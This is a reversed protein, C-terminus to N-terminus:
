VRFDIEFNFPISLPVIYSFFLIKHDSKNGRQLSPIYYRQIYLRSVIVPNGSFTFLTLTLKVCLQVLLYDCELFKVDRNGNINRDFCM